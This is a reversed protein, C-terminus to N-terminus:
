LHHQLTWAPKGQSRSWRRAWPWWSPGLCLYNTVVKLVSASGLPGTHLIRRGMVPSHRCPPRSPRVSAASSSRSTAPRRGTAAAPSRHLGDPDRGQGRGSRGLRRVEAEDTTSMELWIKGPGLAAIVGDDAEMVAASAAPSPLCTITIDCAAAMEAPSDAWAAGRTWSLSRWMATSIACWSTSVTACCAAPWSAASM